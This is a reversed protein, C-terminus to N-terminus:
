RRQHAHQTESDTTTFTTQDPKASLRSVSPEAKATYTESILSLPM